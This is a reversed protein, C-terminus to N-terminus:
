NRRKSASCNPRRLGSAVCNKMTPSTRRWGSCPRTTGSAPRTRRASSGTPWPWSSATSAAAARSTLEKSKKSHQLPPRATARATTAGRGLTNWIAGDNPALEVAKKALEVAQRPDRLKPDPAPPWCWALNNHASASKPDLEIAKRFCAIAEDVQGKATLADGLNSHAKAYKPDLEIAKRYCAIAEDLQGKDSCPLAWTTTPRPTSRTSNSPRATAPSPRTWGARARAPRQGPQQPGRRHKPDLEIAKRYCAIAEDVKGKSQWLSAWTTTPRPTRRTSNSPRATAPSPRTWSARTVRLVNGLNTHAEAYKPDLEIAKQYCAIAEDLKKQSACPSASTTHPLGSNKPDLEIAKRYCAIAEDLKKQKHM